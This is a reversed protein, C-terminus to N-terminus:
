PITPLNTLRFLMYALILYTKFVDDYLHEFQYFKSGVQKLMKQKVYFCGNGLLWWSNKM